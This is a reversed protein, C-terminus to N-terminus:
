RIRDFRPNFKRAGASAMNYATHHVQIYGTAKVIATRIDAEARSLEGAGAFWIARM